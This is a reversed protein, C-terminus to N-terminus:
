CQRALAMTKKGLVLNLTTMSDHRMTNTQGNKWNPSELRGLQIWIYRCIKVGMQVTLILGVEAVGIYRQM